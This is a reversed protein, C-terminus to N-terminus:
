IGSCSFLMEVKLIVLRIRPILLLVSTSGQVIPTWDGEEYDDLKNASGTGGLYVGGSLYLDKFRNTGNGLDIAADRQAGNTGRPFILDSGASFALNTDGNGIYLYNSTEAGIQGVVVNDARFQAIAGKSTKRNAILPVNSDRTAALLGTPHAEIGVTNIVSEDTKGILLKGSSTIRMRETPTSSAASTAIVFNHANNSGQAEALM